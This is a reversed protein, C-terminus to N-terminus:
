KTTQLLVASTSDGYNGDGSYAATISHRGTALTSTSFTAVAKTVSSTGLTTTGDFFTITGTANSFSMLATFTVAQGLTSPNASQPSCSVTNQKVTQFLPASTSGTYASEGSYTAAISQVGPPL